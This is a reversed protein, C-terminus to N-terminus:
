GVPIPQSAGVVGDDGFGIVQLWGNRVLRAGAGARDPEGAGVTVTTAEGAWAWLVAGNEDVVIAMYREAGAAPEWSIAPRATGDVTVEFADDQDAVASLSALIEPAGPAETTTTTATTTPAATTTSPAATTQDSTTAVTTSPSSTGTSESEGSCSAAVIVVALLALLRRM